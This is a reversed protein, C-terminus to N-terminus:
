TVRDIIDGLIGGDGQTTKPRADAPPANKYKTYAALVIPALMTLIRMVKQPQIGSANSIDKQVTSQSGGLISDLMGGSGTAGGLMGGIAGGLGGGGTSIMDGLGGLMSPQMAADGTAQAVEQTSLAGAILPVSADVAQRTKEPDEGIETSIRNITDPTIQDKIFDLIGSM